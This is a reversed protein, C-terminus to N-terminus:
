NESRITWTLGSPDTFIRPDKNTSSPDIAGDPTLTVTLNTSTQSAGAGNGFWLSNTQVAGDQTIVASDVEEGSFGMTVTFQRRTGSNAEVSLQLSIDYQASAGGGSAYSGTTLSDRQNANLETGNIVASTLTVGSPLTLRLAELNSYGTLTVSGGSAPVGSPDNLTMIFSGKQTVVLKNSSSVSTYSGTGKASFTATIDGRGTYSSVGTVTLVQNGTGTDGSNYVVKIGNKQAM